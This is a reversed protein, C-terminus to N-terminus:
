LNTLKLMGEQPDFSVKIKSYERDFRYVMKGVQITTDEHVLNFHIASQAPVKIRIADKKEGSEAATSIYVFENVKVNSEAKITGGRFVGQVRVEGGAQLSSFYSGAGMIEIHGSHRINSNQTYSISLLPLENLEGHYGESLTRFVKLYKILEDPNCKETNLSLFAQLSKIAEKTDDLYSFSSQELRRDLLMLTDRLGSSKDLLMKIIRKLYADDVKQGKEALGKFIQKLNEIFGDLEETLQNVLVLVERLLAYFIGGQVDCKVVNKGVHIGNGAKLTAGYCNNDVILSGSAEVIMGETVNGFIRVDGNFRINGSEMNVDGKHVLLNVVKIHNGAVIMRGDKQAVIDKNNEAFETGEGCRVKAAKVPKPVIVEGTVRQGPKGDEPPHLIAIVDGKKVAPYRFKERFDARINEEEYNIVEVEHSVVFELRGNKGEQKDVGRAVTNFEGDANKVLENLIAMNLGHLINQKRLEQEAQELTLLKEINESKELQPKLSASLPTDKLHYTVVRRPFVAALANLGDPSIKVELRADEMYTTPEFTVVDQSDCTIQKELEVGNVYVIGGEEPPYLVAGKGGGQPAIIKIKGEIVGIQGDLENALM